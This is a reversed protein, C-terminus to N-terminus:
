IIEYCNKGVGSNQNKGRERSTVRLKSEVDTGAEKKNVLKNIKKSDM